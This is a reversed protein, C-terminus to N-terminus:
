RLAYDRKVTVVVALVVAVLTYGAFVGVGELPGLQDMALRSGGITKFPLFAGYREDVVFVLVTEVALSWLLLLSLTMATSRLVIAVAAGLLAALPVALLDAVISGVAGDAGLVRSLTAGTGVTGALATLVLAPVAMALGLGAVWVFKGALVRVRDAVVCAAVVATGTELDSTVALVGLIMAVYAFYEMPLAVPAAVLADAAPGDFARAIFWAMVVVAV